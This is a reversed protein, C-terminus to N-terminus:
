SCDMTKPRIERGEVVTGGSFMVIIGFGPVTQSLNQCNRLIRTFKILRNEKPTFISVNTRM